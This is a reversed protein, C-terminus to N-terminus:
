EWGEEASAISRDDALNVEEEDDSEYKNITFIRDTASLGLKEKEATVYRRLRHVQLELKTNGTELARRHMMLADVQQDDGPARPTMEVAPKDPEMQNM